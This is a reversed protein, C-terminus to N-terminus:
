KEERIKRVYGKAEEAMEEIRKESRYFRYGGVGLGLPIGYLLEQNLTLDIMDPNIIDVLNDGLYITGVGALAGGILHTLFSPRKRENRLNDIGGEAMMQAFSPFDDKRSM